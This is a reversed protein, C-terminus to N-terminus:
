ARTPPWGPRYLQDGDVGVVLWGAEGHRLAFRRAFAGPGPRAGPSDAEVFSVVETDVGLIEDGDITMWTLVSLGRWITQWRHVIEKAFVDWYGSDHGVDALSTAVTDREQEPGVQNPGSRHSWIWDQALVLRFEPDTLPWAQDLSGDDMVAKVWLRAVEQATAIPSGGADDNREPAM